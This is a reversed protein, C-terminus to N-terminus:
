WKLLPLNPAQGCSRSLMALAELFEEGLDGQFLDADNERGLDCAERAVAGVPIWPFVISFRSSIALNSFTAISYIRAQRPPFPCIHVAQEFALRELLCNSFPDLLSHYFSGGPRYSFGSLMGDQVAARVPRSKEKRLMM